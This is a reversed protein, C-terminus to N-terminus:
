AWRCQKAVPIATAGTSQLWAATAADVRVGGRPFVGILACDCGARGDDRNLRSVERADAAVAYAACSFFRGMVERLVGAGACRDACTARRGFGGACRGGHRGGGEVSRSVAAMRQRLWQPRCDAFRWPVLSPLPPRGRCGNPSVAWGTWRARALGQMVAGAASFLLPQVLQPDVCPLLCAGFGLTVWEPRNM